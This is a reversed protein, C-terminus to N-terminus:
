SAKPLDKGAPGSPAEGPHSAAKGSSENEPIWADVRTGEKPASRVRLSGNLPRLREKMSFFGLGTKTQAANYDFGEGDDEVTLHIVGDERRWLLIRATTANSHKAVNNLAEQVIRFLCLNVEAPMKPLAPDPDFESHIGRQEAFEGILGRLAPILGLQDIAASRMGHLVRRVTETVGDIQAALEALGANIEPPAGGQTRISELRMALLALQRSLDNHLERGIRNREEEQVRLLQGTLEHLAQEARKRETIDRIAGSILDAGPERLPSLSIEAPFQSGDKRIGFLERGEKALRAQGALSALLPALDPVLVGVPMGLLEDRRYGFIRETQENVRVIKGDRNTIVMADPAQELLERFNAESARLLAETNEETTIDRSVGYLAVVHGSDDLAPEGISDLFRIEGNPRVIRSRFRYPRGIRIAQGLRVRTEAADDPHAFSILDELAEGTSEPSRGYIRYLADSWLLQNTGADWYFSGTHSIQQGRALLTQNRKMDKVAETLAEGTVEMKGTLAHHAERLLEETERHRSVVCAVIAATVGMMGMFTQLVLLREDSIQPNSFARAIAAVTVLLTAGVATTLEFRIAAWLLFPVAIFRLGYRGSINAASEAIGLSVLILCVGLALAELVRLRNWKLPRYGMWLPVLALTILIDGVANGMWWITWLRGFDNGSIYGGLFLAGVGLTASIATSGLAALFLFRLIAEPRNFFAKGDAFRNVLYAGALAELANGSAIGLSTGPSGATLINALFAGAFVAPWFRYGLFLLAALAIGSSPWVASVSANSVALVLGAKSAIFIAVTLALMYPAFPRAADTLRDHPIGAKSHTDARM